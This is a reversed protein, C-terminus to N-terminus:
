DIPRDIVFATVYAPEFPAHLSAAVPSIVGAPYGPIRTIRGQGAKGAMRGVRCTM